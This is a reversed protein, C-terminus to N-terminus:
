RSPTYSVLSNFYSALQETGYNKFDIWPGTQAIPPDGWPTSGIGFSSKFILTGYNILTGVQDTDAFANHFITTTTGPWTVIMASNALMTSGSLKPLAILSKKINLVCSDCLIGENVGTSEL